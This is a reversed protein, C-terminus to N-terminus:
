DSNNTGEDNGGEEQSSVRKSLEEREMSVETLAVRLEAIQNEYTATLEAIRESLAQNKYRLKDEESFM